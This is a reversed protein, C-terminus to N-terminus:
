SGIFKAATFSIGALTAAVGIFKWTQDNITKQVDTISKQFTVALDQVDKGSARVFGSLDDKSALNALDVKTAMNAEIGDLRMEVRVLKERIEPIAKELAAVRAEMEGGGPPENPGGNRKKERDLEGIMAEYRSQLLRVDVNQDMM